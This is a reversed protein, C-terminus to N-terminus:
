PEGFTSVWIPKGKATILEIEINWQKGDEIAEKVALEIADRSPGKKYYEIANDLFPTFDVPM